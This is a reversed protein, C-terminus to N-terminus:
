GRRGLPVGALDHDLEQNGSLGHVSLFEPWARNAHIDHSFLFGRHGDEVLGM